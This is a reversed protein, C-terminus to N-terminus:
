KATSRCLPMEKCVTQIALCQNFTTTPINENSKIHLKIGKHQLHFFFAPKRSFYWNKFLFRKKRTTTAYLVQGVFFTFIAKFSTILTM